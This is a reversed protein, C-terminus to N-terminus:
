FTVEVVLLKSTSHWLWEQLSIEISYSPSVDMWPDKLRLMQGGKKGGASISFFCPARYREEREAHFAPNPRQEDPDM